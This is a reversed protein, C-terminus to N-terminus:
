DEFLRVAWPIRPACRINEDKLVVRSGCKFGVFRALPRLGLEVQRLPLSEDGKDFFPALPHLVALSDKGCRQVPILRQVLELLNQHL